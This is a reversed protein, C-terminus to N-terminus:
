ISVKGVRYNQAPTRILGSHLEVQYGGRPKYVEVEDLPFGFAGEHSQPPNSPKNREGYDRLNNLSDDCATGRTGNM